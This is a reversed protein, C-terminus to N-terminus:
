KKPSADGRPTSRTPMRPRPSSSTRRGQPIEFIEADIPALAEMEYSYDGGGVTFSVGAPTAIRFKAM